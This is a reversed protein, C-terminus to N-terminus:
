FSSFLVRVFLAGTELQGSRYTLLTKCRVQCVAPLKWASDEFAISQVPLTTGLLM